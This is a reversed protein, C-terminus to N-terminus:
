SVARGYQAARREDESLLRTDDEDGPMDDVEAEDDQYAEDEAAAHKPKEREQEAFYELLLRHIFIYGGGVKRLLIREAAHDLFSAFNRPIQRTLTLVSRLTVHQLTAYLGNSLGALLTFMPMVLMIFAILMPWGLARNELLFGLDLGLLGPLFLAMILASVQALCGGRFAAMQGLRWSQTIGQNAKTRQEVSTGRLGGLFFGLITGVLGMTIGATLFVDSQSPYDRSVLSSSAAWAEAGVNAFTGLLAGGIVALLGGWIVANIRARPWSWRLSEVPEIRKRFSYRVSAILGYLAGPVGFLFLAPAAVLAYLLSLPALIMMVREMYKNFRDRDRSSLRLLYLVLLLSALLFGLASYTMTSMINMLRIFMLVPFGVTILVLLPTMFYAWGAATTLARVGVAYAARPGFGGSWDPQMDEIHFVSQARRSMQDALWALYRRTEEPTYKAAAGRRELMREVYTDFVHRRRAELSEFAPIDDMGRYALAVISLMLPSTTLRRLKEDDNLVARVAALDPGAQALYADVQARTLPQLVIAGDLRLKGALAEYDAIRSCVVMQVFGHASRYTNITEVCANRHESQVEDLGDLLPLIAESDVWARGTKRPVMYRANLEEVMWEDLPARQQAWSSLNFVIPIPHTPDADARALLDRTLELLMTTKGSGPAGLILLKGNLQDFVDRIRTGPPLNDDPADPTRLVMDWPNEVQADAPRMGLVILAAGYLSNELVGEIWFRRVNDIVAARNREDPTKPRSRPPTEVKEVASIPAPQLAARFAEAVAPATTYRQAPNKATARQIVDDLRPPLDPHTDLISPIPATLHKSLVVLGTESFPPQGTLLEYILLGLTYIDTQPTVPQQQIQEPSLYAPSGILVGPQTTTVPQDLQKAIGFDTLYANGREDLLVNAPKLDRHIVGSQHAAELAAALQDLIRGVQALPLAGQRQLAEKLSGGRVWRMVLFASREDQWYDYLPVIHPHELRAVLQAEIAFRRAFDPQAAHEPRIVKIAVDRNVASQHARYVAGFGGSGISELIQYGNLTQGIIDDM